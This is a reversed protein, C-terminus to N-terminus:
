IIEYKRLEDLFKNVDKEATEEDVEYEILIKDVIDKVTECEPLIDWILSGTETVLFLGNTDKLANGFPVLVTQGAVERKIMSKKIKM